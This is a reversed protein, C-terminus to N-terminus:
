KAGERKADRYVLYGARLEEVDYVPVKDGPNVPRIGNHSIVADLLVANELMAAATERRVTLKPAKVIESYKM